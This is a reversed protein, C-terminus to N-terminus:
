GSTGQQRVQVAVAQPHLLHRASLHRLSGDGEVGSDILFLDAMYILGMQVGGDCGGTAPHDTIQPRETATSREYVDRREDRAGQCMPAMRLM